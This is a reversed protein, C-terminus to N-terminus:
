SPREKDPRARLVKIVKPWLFILPFRRELSTIEVRMGTRREVKRSIYPLWNDFTLVHKPWRATVRAKSRLFHWRWRRRVRGPAPEALRYRPPSGELRVLTGQLALEELVPSLHKVFHDRQGEFVQDSRDNAEPRFEGSYCVALARRGVSEADFEADLYPAAWDMMRERAAALCAEVWGASAEDRAWVLAVKQVMRGLLFHDPPMPGLAREFHKRTTVLCKAIGERGDDPTFAIANPPLIRAAWSLLWAPRHMERAAKLNRYFGGYDDVLVVFDFASHRDPSAKLLHSGYLLVADVEGGGAVALAEALAKAYSM